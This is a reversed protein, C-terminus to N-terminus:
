RSERLSQRLAISLGDCLYAYNNVLSELLGGGQIRAPTVRTDVGGSGIVKALGCGDSLRIPITIGEGISSGLCNGGTIGRGLGSSLHFSHM